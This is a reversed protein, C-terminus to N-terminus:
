EWRSTRKVACAFETLECCLNTVGSQSKKSQWALWLSSQRSNLWFQLLNKCFRKQGQGFIELDHLIWVNTFINTEHHRHKILQLYKQLKYRWESIYLIQEFHREIDACAWAARFTTRLKCTVKLMQMKCTTTQFQSFNSAQSACLMNQRINQVLRQHKNIHKIKQMNFSIVTITPVNEQLEKQELIM